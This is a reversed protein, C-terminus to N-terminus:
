GDELHFLVASGLLLSVTAPTWAALWVSIKHSIGFAHLVSELFFIFFGLAIGLVILAGTGQRRQHRLSVTAALLVMAAFFLPQALLSHYHVKLRTAPFGTEEMLAIFEPIRWFPLTEPPAFSEEIEDATLTTPILHAEQFQAPPERGHITVSRAEWYGDRLFAQPADIRRTMTDNKDFYFVILGKIQWTEPSFRSAHFLSYGDPENQRLWLGTKSITILESKKQLYFTEMDSFKSLLVASVPNIVTTALIGVIITAALVPSLFQWVSLGVTRAVVLENTRTMRWFTFISAFLVAFPLVHQGAEPLKLFAMKAIIAFGLDPHAAARRMLEITDLIYIIGLLVMLLCFFHTLFQSGIYRFLASSIKM